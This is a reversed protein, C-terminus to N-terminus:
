VAAALGAMPSKDRLMWICVGRTMFKFVVQTKTYKIQAQCALPGQECPWVKGNQLTENFRLGSSVSVRWCRAACKAWPLSSRGFERFIQVVGNGGERKSVPLFFSFWLFSLRIFGLEM